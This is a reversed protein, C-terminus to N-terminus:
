RWVGGLDREKAKIVSSDTGSKRRRRKWRDYCTKSNAAKSKM